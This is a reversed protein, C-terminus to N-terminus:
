CEVTKTEADVGWELFDSLKTSSKRWMKGASNCWVKGGKECADRKPVSAKSHTQCVAKGSKAGCCTARHGQPAITDCFKIKKTCQDTGDMIQPEETPDVELPSGDLIQPENGCGSCGACKTKLCIKPKLSGDREKFCSDDCKLNVEGPKLGNACGDCAACRMDNCKHLKFNGNKANYCADDDCEPEKPDPTDGCEPCAACKRQDCRGLKMKGNKANYCKDDCEPTELDCEACGGCESTECKNKRVKGSKLYYCDDSCGEDPTPCEPCTSCAFWTCKKEWSKASHKKSYCWKACEYDPRNEDDYENGKENDELDDTDQCEGTCECCGNCKDKSCQKSPNLNGKKTYCSDECM